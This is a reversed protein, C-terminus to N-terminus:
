AVHYAFLYAVAAAGAPVSFFVLYKNVSELGPGFVRGIMAQIGGADPIQSGASAFTWALALGLVGLLAWALLSAAGGAEWALYPVILIGTGLVAALYLALGQAFGLNKPLTGTKNNTAM